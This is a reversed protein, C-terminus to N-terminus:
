HIPEDPPGGYKNEYWEKWEEALALWDQRDKNFSQIEKNLVVRKLRPFIISLARGVAVIFRPTDEIPKPPNELARCVCIYARQDEGRDQYIRAVLKLADMDCPDHELAREGYELAEQVSGMRYHCHAIMGLDYANEGKAAIGEKLYRIATPFDGRGAARTVKM